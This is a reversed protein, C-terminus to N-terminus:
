YVPQTSIPPPTAIHDEIVEMTVDDFKSIPTEGIKIDSMSVPGYGVCFLMRLYQDDGIIETYPGAAYPPSIRHTGFITPVAGYQSAENQAGGISYLTKTNDIQSVPKAPPFLANVIMSGAISLGAGILGTAVSFATTGATFFAAALYPAVVAAVLAVIAGLIKGIAKGRPVAVVNITVGPKVRVRSWNKRPISHGNLSVSLASKEPHLGSETACDEIMEGITMGAALRFHKKEQRFPSPRVYVDVLDAPSIIEGFQSARNRAVLM